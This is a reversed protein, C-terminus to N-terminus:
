HSLILKPIIMGILRPFFQNQLTKNLTDQVIKSQHEYIRNRWIMLTESKVKLSDSLLFNSSTNQASSFLEFQKNKKSINKNPNEM